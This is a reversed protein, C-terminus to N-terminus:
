RTLIEEGGISVSFEDGKIESLENLFVYREADKAHNFKDRPKEGLMYNGEADKNYMYKRNESISGLSSETYYKKFRNMVQIGLRIDKNNTKVANIGFGRLESISKPEAEDCIVKLHSYGSEQIARAIDGNEMNSGYAIEHIYVEEREGLVVLMIATPNSWGFDVGIFAKRWTSRPPLEKCTEWNKIVLGRTTGLNGEGYVSWWDPDTERNSEIEKIQAETLFDNDLYTSHLVVVDDRTLIKTDIWSEWAPNYDIIIKESTRIAMQRYIEWDIFIGENVFLYNRQSGHVKGANDVSFFELQAKEYTFVKDTENFNRGVDIGEGILINKYDRICGRKLHPMTESVVSILRQTSSKRGIFDLAQLVSYTKTSRAGGKLVIIRIKPDLLAKIIQSYVKSTKM